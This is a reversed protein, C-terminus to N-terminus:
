SKPSLYEVDNYRLLTGKGRYSPIEFRSSPTYTTQSTSTGSVIPIQGPVNVGSVTGSYSTKTTSKAPTTLTLTGALERELVVAHAGLAAAKKKLRKYFFSDYEDTTEEVELEGIVTYTAPDDPLKELIEVQSASVPAYKHGPYMSTKISACGTLLGCIAALTLVIM